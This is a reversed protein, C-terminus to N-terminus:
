QHGGWVSADFSGGGESDIEEWDMFGDYPNKLDEKETPVLMSRPDYFTQEATHKEGFLLATISFCPSFLRENIFLGRFEIIPVVLREEDCMTELDDIKEVTSDEFLLYANLRDSVQLLVENDRSIVSCLMRKVSARDVKRQFWAECNAYIVDTLYAEFEHMFQVTADDLLKIVAGVKRYKTLVCKMDEQEGLQFRYKGLAHASRSKGDRSLKPTGLKVEDIKFEESVVASM